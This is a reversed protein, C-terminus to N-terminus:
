DNQVETLNIINAREVLDDTSYNGYIANIKQDYKINDFPREKQELVAQKFKKSFATPLGIYRIVKLIGTSADILLIQLGYGKRESLEMFDFPKSLHVSYPADVWNLSGFKFLMFIIEDKTYIGIQMKGSRINEIEKESPRDLIVFLIPGGQTFDFKITEQYRTRGQEFLKGVEYNQM